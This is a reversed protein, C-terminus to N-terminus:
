LLVRVGGYDKSYLKDLKETYEQFNSFEKETPRVTPLPPLFNYDM